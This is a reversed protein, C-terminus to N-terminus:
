SLNQQFYCSLSPFVLALWITARTARDLKSPLLVPYHFFAICFAFVLRFSLSILLPPLHSPRPTQRTQGTLDRGRPCGWPRARRVKSRRSRGSTPYVSRFDAEVVNPLSPQPHSFPTFRPKTARTDLPLPPRHVPSIGRNPILVRCRDTMHILDQNSGHQM